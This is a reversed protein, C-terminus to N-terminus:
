TLFGQSSYCHFGSIGTNQCFLKNRTWMLTWNAPSFCSCIIQELCDNLSQTSPSRATTVCPKWSSGPAQTQIVSSPLSHQSNCPLNEQPLRPLPIGWKQGCGNKANRVPSLDGTPDWKRNDWWLFETVHSCTRAPSAPLVARFEPPLSAEQMICKSLWM